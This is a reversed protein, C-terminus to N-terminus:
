IKSVDEGCSPCNTRGTKELSIHDENCSQESVKIINNLLRIKADKARILEESDKVGQQYGIAFSKKDM